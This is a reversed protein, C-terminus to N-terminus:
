RRGRPDEALTEQVYPFPTLNYPQAALWRLCLAMALATICWSVAAEIM